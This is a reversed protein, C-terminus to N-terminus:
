ARRTAEDCNNDSDDDACMTACAFLNAYTHNVHNVHKHKHIRSEAIWRVQHLTGMIRSYYYSFSRSACHMRQAVINAGGEDEKGQRYSTYTTRMYLTSSIPVEAAAAAPM